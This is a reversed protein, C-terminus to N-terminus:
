AQELYRPIEMLNDIGHAEDCGYRRLNEGDARGLRRRLRPRTASASSTGAQADGKYSALFGAQGCPGSWAGDTMIIVIHVDKDYRQNDLDALAVTPDTGGASVIVPLNEAVEDADWLVTADTDWLM